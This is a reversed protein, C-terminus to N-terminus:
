CIFVNKGFKVPLFFFLFLNCHLFLFGFNYNGTIFFPWDPLMFCLCNLVLLIFSTKVGIELILM